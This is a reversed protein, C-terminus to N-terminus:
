QLAVLPLALGPSQTFFFNLPLYLKKVKSFDAAPNDFDVLKRYHKKESDTYYLESRLRSWSAYHKDIRQGGIELEIEKILSEAPFYTTGSAGKKLSIELWCNSLLDGNRPVTASLRKGWGTSGNWTAAISEVSFSTYRRYLSKFFQM